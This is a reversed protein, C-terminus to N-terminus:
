VTKKIKEPLKERWKQWAEERKKLRREHEEFQVIIFFFNVTFFFFFGLRGKRSTPDFFLELYVLMKQVPLCASRLFSQNDSFSYIITRVDEPTLSPLNSIHIKEKSFKTKKKEFVEDDDDNNNNDNDNSSGDCVDSHCTKNGYKEILTKMVEAKKTIKDRV